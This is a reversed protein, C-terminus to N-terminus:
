RDAAPSPLVTGECDGFGIRRVGDRQGYARLRVSDGDQLFSRTEGNALILPQKGGSTLELLSGGQGAEPGSQTGSGLLDGSSLNCGNSAHHTILQALTWYSDRFNSAMLKQHPLGAERMAATQLWVELVLDLGGSARNAESDLYPLPQPDGAPREFPVRFPALAEATVIWPSITSAFSKSLFPGLPQYEWAQVDRASWDNLLVLGFLHDEARQIGIPEGLANGGGVFAGLELEWDLRRCPGHVPAADDPGKMQGLPRRFPTGSPVISSGRGHYGIPVWKYNPLLPNDPRFLKGVTTAHHIGTYFDTYDGIRCPVALEVEAQPVLCLELFPGQESGEALAQSLAARLTRRAAPGLDMFANLDGGALPELLRSVETPWPCQAAALKLDLVQDGIAVGIRFPEDAKRRKFRGFPLNQIPFDTDAENASAVWSRLAPDHTADILTNSM